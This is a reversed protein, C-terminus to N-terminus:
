QISANAQMVTSVRKCPKRLHIREQVVEPDQGLEEQRLVRQGAHNVANGATFPRRELVKQDTRKDGPVLYIHTDGRLRIAAPIFMEVMKERAGQFGPCPGDRPIHVSNDAWPVDFVHDYGFFFTDGCM